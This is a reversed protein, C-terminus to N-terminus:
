MEECREGKAFMEVQIAIHFRRHIHKQWMTLRVTEIVMNKLKRHLVKYIMTQRKSM